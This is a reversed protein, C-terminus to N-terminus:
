NNIEKGYYGKTIEYILAPLSWILINKSSNTDILLHYIKSFWKPPRLVWGTIDYSGTVTIIGANDLIIVIERIIEPVFVLLNAAFLMACISLLFNRWKLRDTKVFWINKKMYICIIVTAVAVTLPGTIGLWLWKRFLLTHSYTVVTLLYMVALFIATRYVVASQAKVTVATEKVTNIINKFHRDPNHIIDKTKNKIDEAQPLYPPNDKRKYPKAMEYVIGSVAFILYYPPKYFKSGSLAISSIFIKIAEVWGPLTLAWDMSSYSTAGKFPGIKMRFMVSLIDYRITELCCAFCLVFIILMIYKYLGRYKIGNSKRIVGTLKLLQIIFIGALFYGVPRIVYYLLVVGSYGFMSALYKNQIFRVAYYVMYLTVFYKVTNLIDKQLKEDPKRKGYVLENVDIDLKEAIQLLTEVDPLAKGNEWNSVTQRTVYLMDAMEQQTWNRAQRLRKINKAIIHMVEGDKTQIIGWLYTFTVCNHNASGFCATNM